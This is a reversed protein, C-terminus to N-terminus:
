EKFNRPHGTKNKDIYDDYAKAAETETKFKGIYIRKGEVTIRALWRKFRNIYTVGMYASSSGSIKKAFRPNNEGSVDAHNKSMKEKTEATHKKGFFHNKSGTKGFMPNGNGKNAKSIKDKTEKSHFLGSWGTKRGGLLINYSLGKSKAKKIYSIELNDLKEFNCIEVIEFNFSFSGDNNWDEQLSKNPHSNKELMKRHDYLRKYIDESAGIYCMKNKMNEIKYIGCLIEPNAFKRM